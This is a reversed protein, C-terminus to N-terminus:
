DKTILGLLHDAWEGWCTFTGDTRIACASGLGAFISVLKAGSPLSAQISSSGWCAPSGDTRIACNYGQGAAVSVYTGQPVDVPQSGRERAWCAVTLDRRVGCFESGASVSLFAGGPSAVPESATFADGRQACEVTGDPRVGCAGELYSDMTSSFSQFTGSPNWPPQGCWTGWCLATGDAKLACRDSLSVFQEAPPAFVPKEGWCSITGDRKLGCASTREGALASYLGPAPSIAYADPGWCDGWCAVVGNSKLVCLYSSGVALDLTTLECRGGWAGLPCVCAGQSDVSGGHLCGGCESSGEGSPCPACIRDSM